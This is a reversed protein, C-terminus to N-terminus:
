TPPRQLLLVAECRLDPIGCPSLGRISSVVPSETIPWSMGPFVLDLALRETNLLM